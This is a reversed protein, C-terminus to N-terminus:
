GISTVLPMGATWSLPGFGNAVMRAIAKVGSWADDFRVDGLSLLVDGRKLGAADAGGGSQVSRVELEGKRFRTKFSVPAEQEVEVENQNSVTAYVIRPDSPFITLGIRGIDGEPLGGTLRTFSAGADTSKWIASGPGNGDFDWARRRREYSAAYVTSPHDPDLVVDVVGVDENVSLVKDWTDGGDRTKYLGREENPTYLHGLAAAYVVDSDTPDVVIRGIHHSDGLGTNTWTEGGDTTKYVGDGWYSSRQNNAEGTGIWIVQDDEPDLAVDGISITGEHQFICEWTTGSNQTRWLGGSASAVLLYARNTPHLAVDVVRGGFVAPGIERWPFNESLSTELDQALAPGTCLPVLCLPVVLPTLMACAISRARRTM